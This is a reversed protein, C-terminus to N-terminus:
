RGTQLEWNETNHKLKCSKTHLKETETKLKSITIELKWNGTKLKLNKYLIAM